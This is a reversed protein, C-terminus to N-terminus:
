KQALTGLPDDEGVPNDKAKSVAVHWVKGNVAYAQMM